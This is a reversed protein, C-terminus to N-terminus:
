FDIDDPDIVENNQQNSYQGNQEPKIYRDILMVDNANVKTIYKKIGDKEYSETKIYGKVLVRTGKKIRSYLSNARQAWVVINHFTVDDVWEDGKKYNRNTAMSFSLVPTGNPTTRMDPDQTINGLLTVENIDGFLSM